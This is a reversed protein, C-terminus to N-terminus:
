NKWIIKIQKGKEYVEKFNNKIDEFNKDGLIKIDIKKVDKKDNKFFKEM